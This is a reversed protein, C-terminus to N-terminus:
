RLAMVTGSVYGVRVRAQVWPRIYMTGRTPLQVGSSKIKANLGWLFNYKAGGFNLCIAGRVWPVWHGLLCAWENLCKFDVFM